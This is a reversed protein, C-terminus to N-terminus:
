AHPPLNAPARGSPAFILVSFRTALFIAALLWLVAALAEVITAAARALPQPIQSIRENISTVGVVATLAMAVVLAAVLVFALLKKTMRKSVNAHPGAGIYREFPEIGFRFLRGAVRGGWTDVFDPGITRSLFRSNSTIPPTTSSTSAPQGSALSALGAREEMGTVDQATEYSVGSISYSYCVLRRHGNAAAPKRRAFAEAPASAADVELLEIIQGEVIRGVRNLHSRRQREIEETDPSRM